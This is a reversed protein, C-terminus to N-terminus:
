RQMRRLRAAPFDLRGPASLLVLVGFGMMGVPALCPVPVVRGGALVAGCFCRRRAEGPEGCNVNADAGASARRGDPVAAAGASAGASARLCDGRRSRAGQLERGCSVAEVGCAVGRGVRDDM